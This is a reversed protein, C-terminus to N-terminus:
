YWENSLELVEVVAMLIGVFTVVVLREILSFARERVM